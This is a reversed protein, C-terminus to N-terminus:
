GEIEAKGILVLWANRVRICCRRLLVQWRPAPKFLVVDGYLAIEWQRRADEYANNMRENLVRLSEATAIRDAEQM